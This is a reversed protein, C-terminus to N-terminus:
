TPSAPAGEYGQEWFVRMAHELAEDTDFGRPRGIPAKQRTEM